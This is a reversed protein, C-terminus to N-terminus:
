TSTFPATSTRALSPSIQMWRLRLTPSLTGPLDRKSWGARYLNNPPGFEVEWNVIKGDSEKVDVYLWSHPNTWEMKTITGKIKIPKASDFQASFAHHALVPGGAVLLALGVTAAITVLIARM